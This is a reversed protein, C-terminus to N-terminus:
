ILAMTRLLFIWGTVTVASFLTTVAVIGNALVADNGMNQAMIYSSVASPTGALVLLAVLADQRFGLAAGPLVVLAPLVVLKLFAAGLTPAKKALADAWRFDAGIVILSLPSALNGLMSLVKDGAAPMSIPLLSFPLGLVIGWLIPNKAVGKLAGVLRDRDLKGGGGAELSLIVVSLVNYLPVAALIILPAYARSGCISELLVTGLLATNGRFSGQAFAGVLTKDRLLKRALLWFLLVTALTGAFAYALFGGDTLEGPRLSAMQRLLMAPLCLRFVLKNGVRCFGETLFGGRRLLHGLVMVAFVPLTANLSFIFDTLM